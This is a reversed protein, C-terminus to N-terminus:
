LVLPRDGRALLTALGGPQLRIDSRLADPTLGETRLGMECVMFEVGLATCSELLEEFTERERWYLQNVVWASIPPRALKALRSAGTKDGSGKLEASLRKREAVFTELPGQYLEAVAREYSTVM